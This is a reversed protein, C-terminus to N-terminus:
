HISKFNIAPELVKCQQYVEGTAQLVRLKDYLQQAAQATDFSKMRAKYLNHNYISRNPQVSEATWYVIFKKPANDM